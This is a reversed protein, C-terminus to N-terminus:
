HMPPVLAYETMVSLLAVARQCQAPEAIKYAILLANCCTRSFLFESESVGQPAAGSSM